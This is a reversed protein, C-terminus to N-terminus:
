ITGAERALAHAASTSGVHRAKEKCQSSVTVVSCSTYVNTPCPWLYLMQSKPRM